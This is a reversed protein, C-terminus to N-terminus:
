LFANKRFFYSQAYAHLRQAARESIPAEDEGLLDFEANSAKLLHWEGKLASPNLKYTGPRSGQATAIKAGEASRDEAV